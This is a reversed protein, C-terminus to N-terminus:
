HPEPHELVLPVNIVRGGSLQRATTYARVVFPVIDINNDSPFLSTQSNLSNVFLVVTMNNPFKMWVTRLGVYPQQSSYYWWGDHYAINGSVDAIRFCGLNNLLLTDKYATPLVSQDTSSLVTGYLKGAERPTLYWGYAGLTSSFSGPNWGKQGTPYPYTYCYTPDGSPYTPIINTLGVKEFINKQVYALYLQQTQQDDTVDNGTFVYDTMAPILIRMLGINANQYCYKGRDTTKVGKAILQKLGAYINESYSGNLCNSGLGIIGSRHNFLDLFSIQDVNEGKTWSAPLYKSIKDSTRIGKQAALQTFAMAAITKSMSAIHMKTDITYPKAGELDVARSKLGGSGSTKMEDSGYIVFGYGIDRNQLLSTLTQTFADSLSIKMQFTAASSYATGTSSTLYARIFYNANAELGTLSDRMVYPLTTITVQHTTKSDSLTPQANTKSYVFGLTVDQGTIGATMTASVVASTNSRISVVPLQDWSITPPSIPTTDPNSKCGYSLIVVIFCFKSILRSDM